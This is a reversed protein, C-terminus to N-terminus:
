LLQLCAGRSSFLCIAFVVHQLGVNQCLIILVFTLDTCFLIISSPIVQPFLPVGKLLYLSPIISYYLVALCNPSWLCYTLIGLILGNNVKGLGYWVPSYKSFLIQLDGESWRKHQVLTQDLTTATM